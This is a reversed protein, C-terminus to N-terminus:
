HKQPLRRVSKFLLIKIGDYLPKFNYYQVIIKRASTYINFFQLIMVYQNEYKIIRLYIIM